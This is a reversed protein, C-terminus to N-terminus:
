PKLPISGGFALWLFLALGFCSIAFGIAILLRVASPPRTEM